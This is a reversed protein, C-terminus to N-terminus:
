QYKDMTAVCEVLQEMLSRTAKAKRNTNEGLEAIRQTNASIEQSTGSIQQISEVINVNAEYISEIQDSTNHINENLSGISEEISLFQEEANQILEHENATVSTVTDVTMKATEANKQLDSVIQQIGETLSRTEDALMRIEDAVVAFGKGAEGARASEISANLALLNTQSSISFIQETINSVETTNALLQSISDVLMANAEKSEQATTHLSNMAAKGHQVADKSQQALDVMSTATGKTTLLMNHIDSTMVTQKEINSANDSNGESIDNLALATSELDEGLEDIRTNAEKTNTKVTDVISLVDQLLASTKEQEHKISSIKTDNNKNSIKTTACLVIFYIIVPALQLLISATIIENGGHSHKLVAVVYVIDLINELCFCLAIRFILKYDFYLLYIITIPFVITFVLDNKGGFLVIGYLIAFGVISIHKFLLGDKQRFYFIFNLILSLIATGVVTLTFGLTIHHDLYDKFYGVTIISVIVTIITLAFKNVTKLYNNEQSNTM